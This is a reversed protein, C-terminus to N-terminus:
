PRGMTKGARALRRRAHRPDVLLERYIEIRDGDRVAYQRGVLQGWIGVARVAMNQGPFREAIGSRDIAHQVTAGAEVELAVLAQRAPLAYVVEIRLNTDSCRGSV